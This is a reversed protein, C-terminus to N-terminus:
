RGFHSKEVSRLAFFTVATFGFALGAGVDGGLGPKGCLEGIPGIFGPRSTGLIAGAVGVMFATVAAYGPPLASADTYDEPRYGRVGGRFVFHEVLAVAEYIAVWYSIILLFTELMDAFHDYGPISIALYTVTSLLVWVFRPVRQTKRALIQLTLSVSYINPTNTAITALALIILCFSGFPGLPALVLALLGGIHSDDYAHRFEPNHVMTTAVAAGLLQTFVLSVYLGGFTWLFISKRSRTVPQYVTYDAALVTWGSAFGYVAASFSLVAGVEGQGYGMPINNFNGSSVFQGLLVFFVVLVPLASWREYAHVVKYGFLSVVLTSGGMILISAWGPVNKNVAHIIQAGIIVNVAAWGICSLINLSAGLKAGHYGFYFRSLVMQRLGFRSGLTSFFCVPLIGLFTIFTIVLAADVFGLNFIPVSVVGVAFTSVCLNASFWMTAVQAVSSDTREDSPVREIGRQEVGFRGAFRQLKVYLGNGASFENAYVANESSHHIAESTRSTETQPRSDELSRAKDLSIM